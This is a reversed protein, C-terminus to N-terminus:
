RGDEAADKTAAREDARVKELWAPYVPIAPAPRARLRVSAVVHEFAAVGRNMASRTMVAGVVTSGHPDRLRALRVVVPVSARVGDGGRLEGAAVAMETLALREIAGFRALVARDDLAERSRVVLIAYDEGDTRPALLVSDDLSTSSWGDGVDLSLDLQPEDAEHWRVTPARMTAGCGTAVLACLVLAARM